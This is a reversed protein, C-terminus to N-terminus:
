VIPSSCTVQPVTSRGMHVMQGKFSMALHRMFLDSCCNHVRSKFADSLLHVQEWRGSPM